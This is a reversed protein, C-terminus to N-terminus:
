GFNVPDIDIETNPLHKIANAANILPTHSNARILIEFRFKGALFKTGAKGHGIISINQCTKLIEVAENLIELGTKENKNSILIRLLRKFPPYLNKRYEKEDNLFEDYDDIYSEFFDREGTQLIIEGEGNRGARGAVQMALALTKERARFDPYNLQDDLGLIVALAVNHYDHGKSLMQTGVLIDIKKDNFESLIKELKKQTTIEDRDFKTIKANPFNERLVKLIESTGIKKAEFTEGKCKQCRTKYFISYGCYHCKLANQDAHYSLGLDCFPCKMLAGCSKCILYRFNARVPVFVIVQKNAELTKKIHSIVIKSVEGVNEDYIFSKKSEFFTGKLRYFPQKDITTLSPTASGLVVKVGMKKSAFLALDRANYRPKQGSKYSDDHEEDVIIIGLDSFPLFLASRAGAIIKIDGSQLKELIECKKAKTIKSHWVGLFEGFYNKLRKTMQPTLAIEPMLFLAQNHTKLANIILNIYIESKGSGTDGFILSSNHRLAFNYAENQKATLNASKAFKFTKFSQSILPEFIGFAVGIECTYYYSIFKALECQFETFRTECVELIEKTKFKPEDCISLIVGSKESNKLSIKVIKFNSIQLTSSYILPKQNSGLVAIKYFYM